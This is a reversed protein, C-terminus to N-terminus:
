FLRILHIRGSYGDDNGGGTRGGPHLAQLLLVARQGATKVPLSIREGNQAGRYLGKGGRYFFNTTHQDRYRRAPFIGDV